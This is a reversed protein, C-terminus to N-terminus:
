VGRYSSCTTKWVYSKSLSWVFGRHVKIEGDIIGKNDILLSCPDSRIFRCSVLLPGFVTRRISRRILPNLSFSDNRFSVPLSSNKFSARVHQFSRPHVRSRSRRFIRPHRTRLVVPDM